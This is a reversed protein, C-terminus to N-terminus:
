NYDLNIELIIVLLSTSSWVFFILDIALGTIVEHHVSLDDSATM